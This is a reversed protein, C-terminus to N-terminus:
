NGVAKIYTQLGWNNATEHWRGIYNDFSSDNRREFDQAARRLEVPNRISRQWRKVSNGYRWARNRGVGSPLFYYQTGHEWSGHIEKGQRVIRAAADLTKIMHAREDYEHACTADYNCDRLMERIQKGHKIDKSSNSNGFIQLGWQTATPGQFHTIGLGGDNGANPQMPNGYSEQMIMGALTDEPLGHAKEVARYIPRWRLTRQIRGITTNEDALRTGMFDYDVINSYGLSDYYSPRNRGASAKGPVLPTPAEEALTPGATSPFFDERIQQFYPNLESLLLFATTGLAGTKVWSLPRITDIRENLYSFARTGINKSRLAISNGTALAAGTTLMIVSNTADSYNSRDIIEAVAYITGANAAVWLLFKDIGPELTRKVSDAGKVLMDLTKGTVRGIQEIEM